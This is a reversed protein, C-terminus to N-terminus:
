GSSAPPGGDGADSRRARARAALTRDPRCTGCPTFGDARAEDLPLPITGHGELHPCGGLHYRPHEDVVLVEDTLDLVVLLDTVEVEELPPEDPDDEQTVARAASTAAAGVATAGGSTEGASAAAASAPAVEPAPAAHPAPTGLDDAPDAVRTTPGAGAPAPPQAARTPERAGAPDTAGPARSRSLSRRALVILIAAGACAVICAWYWATVGTLLGTALLGAGLLVLGAAGM